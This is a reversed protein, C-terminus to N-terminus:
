RREIFRAADADLCFTASTHRRLVSAPLMDTIPGSLAQYMIDSKDIGNVAVIIEKADMITDVGMTIAQRPVHQMGGFPAAADYRTIPDLHVLRTRASSLSGPENFGIHGTRGVALLQLDIGGADTVAEEYAACDRQVQELTRESGSPLHWAGCNIHDFLHKRMYAYCSHRTQPHLPYYEDINFCTIRSFDLLDDRHMRVLAAYVGVLSSGTDLGVVAKPKSRVLAAIRRAVTECMGIYNREVLVRNNQLTIM